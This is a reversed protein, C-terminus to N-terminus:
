LIIFIFVDVNGCYFKLSRPRITYINNLCIYECFHIDLNLSDTNFSCLMTMFHVFKICKCVRYGKIM